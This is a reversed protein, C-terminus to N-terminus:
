ALLTYIIRSGLMSGAVYLGTTLGARGTPSSSLAFPLATALHLGLGAGTVVAVGLAAGTGAAATAVVRGLLAVAVGVALVRGSGLMAAMRPVLPVMMSGVIMTLAALWSGGLGTHAALVAPVLDTALLVVVASALGCAFALAPHPAV